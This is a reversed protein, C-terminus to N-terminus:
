GFASIRRHDGGRPIEAALGVSAYDKGAVPILQRAPVPPSGALKDAASLVGADHPAAQLGVLSCGLRERQRVAAFVKGAADQRPHSAVARM